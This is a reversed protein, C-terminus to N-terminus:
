FLAQPEAQQNGDAYNGQQRYKHQEEPFTDDTEDNATVYLSHRTSVTIESDACPKIREHCNHITQGTYQLASAICDNRSDM